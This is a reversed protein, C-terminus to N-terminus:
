FVKNLIFGLMFKEGDIVICFISLFMFTSFDSRYIVLLAIQTNDQM